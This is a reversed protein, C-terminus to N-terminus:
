ANPIYFPVIQKVENTLLLVLEKMSGAYTDLELEFIVNFNDNQPCNNIFDEIGQATMIDYQINPCNPIAVTDCGDCIGDLIMYTCQNISICYTDIRPDDDQRCYAPNLPKLAILLKDLLVNIDFPMYNSTETTKIYIHESLNPM